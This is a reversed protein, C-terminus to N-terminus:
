DVPPSPLSPPTFAHTAAILASRTAARLTEGLTSLRPASGWQTLSGLLRNGNHPDLLHIQLLVAAEKAEVVERVVQVAVRGGYIAELHRLANHAAVDAVSAAEALRLDSAEGHQAAQPQEWQRDQYNVAPTYSTGAEQDSEVGGLRESVTVLPSRTEAAASSGVAPEESVEALERAHLMTPGMVPAVRLEEKSSWEGVNTYIVGRKSSELEAADKSLLATSLTSTSTPALQLPLELDLSFCSGVGLRSECTVKGGMLRALKHCVVLGLGSMGFSRRNNPHDVPPQEPVQFINEQQEASMGKGSDSVKILFRFSGPKQPEAAQLKIEVWGHTTYDVANRAFNAIIQQVRLGDGKVCINACAPDMVCYLQLGKEFAAFAEQALVAELVEELLFELEDFELKGEEIKSLDLVDDVVQRLYKGCTATTLVLDRQESTMNTDEMFSISSLIGNLPNRIEHCLCALQMTKAQSAAEAVIRVASANEAARRELMDQMFCTAGVPEGNEGKRSIIHMLTDMQKGDRTQFHFEHNRSDQGHLAQCLGIEFSVLSDPEPVMIMPSSSLVEGVLRKGLVEDRRLGSIKEMSANWECVRWTEDIAFVLMDAQDLLSSTEELGVTVNGALLKITSIDQGVMRVGLLNGHVDHHGYFTSLLHLKRDLPGNEKTCAQLCLDVPEVEVGEIVKNLAIKFDDRSEECLVADLFKHGVVNEKSRKTLESAKMNWELVEGAGSLGIIPTKATEMETQLNRAVDLLQKQVKLREQNLRTQIKLRLDNVAPDPLSDRVILKLGQMADVESDEWPSSQQGAVELFADFSLRPHMNAGEKVKHSAKDGAWKITKTIGTRFWMLFDGKGSIPTAALGCVAPAIELARPYGAVELSSSVFVSDEPAKMDTMWKALDLIQEESPASGLPYVKGAHILAAGDAPVLDLINPKQKILGLPADRTLMGCLVAQTQTIRKDKVDEASEIETTLKLAFAQIIFDCAYRQPYPLVRKGSHHHCVVLGWLKPSRTQAVNVVVAMVLSAQCGMNKSYEKHCGAVGRMTSRSLIIPKELSPHQIIDINVGDMDSILRLRVQVFMERAAQPVDNAPYHLGLLTPLWDEMADAIVEGHQDEHFKYVMVRDYASLAKIEKAVTEALDSIEASSMAQLKAISASARDHKELAREEMENAEEAAIPELDIVVGEQLRHMIAYIPRRAKATRVVLPNAISIDDYTFATEFANPSDSILFSRVDRGLLAQVPQGEFEEDVYHWVNEAAALIQFQENVMLLTGHPQIFGPRQMHQLYAAVDVETAADPLDEMHRSSEQVRNRVPMRWSHQVLRSQQVVQGKYDFSRPTGARSHAEYDSDLRADTAAQAGSFNKKYRAGGGGGGGGGGDGITTHIVGEQEILADSSNHVEAGPPALPLELDLSFSSGHGERSVFSLSGGMIDALNWGVATSEVANRAFNAVVQKVRLSDGTVIASDCAPDQTGYLKLGRELAHSSEQALIESMVQTLMFYETLLELRGERILSAKLMNQVVGQLFEGCVSTTAVLERQQRTMETDEMYKISKLIGDLPSSIEHCLCALQMTKAHSAAEGVIRVATANEATRREVMDQLFCVAGVPVWSTDMRSIVHLLTDMQQGDMTRFRFEHNRLDRGQLAQGLGIDFLVLADEPDMIMPNGKLVDRILHKGLVNDKGIDLVEEMHRNWQTINWDKDIGFALMDTEDLWRGLEPGALQAERSLLKILSIDQGVMRIGVLKGHMDHQGYLSMLLYLRRGDGAKLCLDVPELEDGASVAELARRFDEHSEEAIVSSFPKGMVAGKDLQMLKSARTNWEYVNCSGSLGIVPTRAGEMGSHLKRSVEILQRQVKLRENNLHTQIKFRIAYLDPNEPLSDKVLLRLMQMMEIQEMFAEIKHDTTCHSM